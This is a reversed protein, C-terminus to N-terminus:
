LIDLDRFMQIVENSYRKRWNENVKVGGWVNKVRKESLFAALREAVDENM